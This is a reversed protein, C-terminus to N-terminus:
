EGSGSDLAEARARIADPRVVADGEAVEAEQGARQERYKFRAERLKLKREMLAEGGAKLRDKDKVFQEELELLEIRAKLEELESM